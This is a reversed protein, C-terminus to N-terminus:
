NMSVDKRKRFIRTSIDQTGILNGKEDFHARVVFIGKDWKYRRTNTDIPKIRYNDGLINKYGELNQHGLNKRLYSFRFLQICTFVILVAGTAILIFNLWEM